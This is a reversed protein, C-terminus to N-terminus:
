RFATSSWDVETRWNTTNRVDKTSLQDDIYRHPFDLFDPLGDGPWSVESIARRADDALSRAAGEAEALYETDLLALAFSDSLASRERDIEAADRDASGPDLVLKEFPERFELMDENKWALLVPYNVVGVVFDNHVPKGMLTKNSVVDLIDDVIQFLIGFKMGFEFLARTQPESAGEALAGIQCSTALLAGTKGMLSSLYEEETRGSNFLSETELQQGVSLDILARAISAGVAASVSIACEGAIGLILDGGVLAVGTGHTANITPTKRRTLAADMIDDHILSGVHVMEVSAASRIGKSTTKFGALEAGRLALTPRTGKGGAEVQASVLSPLSSKELSLRRTIEAIVLPLDPHNQFKENM